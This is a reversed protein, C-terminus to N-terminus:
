SSSMLQKRVKPKTHSQAKSGEFSFFFHTPSYNIILYKIKGILL